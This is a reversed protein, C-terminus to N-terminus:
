LTEAVVFLDDVYSESLSLAAALTAVLASAREVDSAYDWEIRAQTKTPDSLADIADEVDQLLGAGYLALRAQRMTVSAPVVPDPEAPATFVVPPGADYAYGPAVEVADDVEVASSNEAIWEASADSCVCEVVDDGGVIVYKSM